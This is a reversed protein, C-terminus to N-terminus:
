QLVVIEETWQAIHNSSNLDQFPLVFAPYSPDMGAAAKDPDVAVMWLLTGNAAEAGSGAPPNRLGFNRSSSFTMWVLRSGDSQTRQYEFPAWKPWSNTLLASADTKGPANARDLVVPTAGVEPKVVHITASPDSDANCDIHATGTPCTSENFAILKGDPSFSPYYHNKGAVEPVVTVDGGFTGNQDSVIHISGSYFRQNNVGDEYAAGARVYTIRSGDASWDPHSTSNSATAGVDITGTQVGTAGDILMLNHTTAGTYSFV